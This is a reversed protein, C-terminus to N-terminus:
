LDSETQAPTNAGATIRMEHNYLSIDRTGWIKDYYGYVENDMEV